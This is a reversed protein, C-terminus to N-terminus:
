TSAGARIPDFWAHMLVEEITPRRAADKHLIFKLFLAADESVATARQQQQPIHVARRLIEDDNFFPCERFLMVYLLVGLAWVDQPKGQYRRGMILEPACYELTGAFTDFTPKESRAYAASGFDVLVARLSADLIVNEDKIDRHVIHRRHLYEIGQCVQYFISRAVAETLGRTQEIYDFLDVGEGHPAMELGFERETEWFGVMRVVNVGYPKRRTWADPVIRDKDILKLAVRAGSIKDRAMAVTGYAGEGMQHETEYDAASRNKKLGTFHHM